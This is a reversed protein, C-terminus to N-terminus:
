RRGFIPRLEEIAPLLGAARHLVCVGDIGGGGGMAGIKPVSSELARDHIGRSPYDRFNFPPSLQPCPHGGGLGALLRAGIGDFAPPWRMADM